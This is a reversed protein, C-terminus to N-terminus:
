DGWSLTIKLSAGGTGKVLLGTLKGSEVSVDVGFEVSATDPKVKTIAAHVVESIGEITDRVKDFNFADGLAVDQAGGAQFAMVNATAGNPLVATVIEYQEDM